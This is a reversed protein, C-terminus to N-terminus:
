NEERKSLEGLLTAFDKAVFRRARELLLPVPSSPELKRYCREVAKMLETAESRSSVTFERAEGEGEPIGSEDGVLAQLQGFDLAFPIPGAIDIRTTEVLNPALVQMAEVFSKGVLQHAQRVLLKAPSSPENLSYYAVIAQLANSAEKLSQIEGVAAPSAAQAVASEQSTDVDTGEEFPSEPTEEAPAREAIVTELIAQVGQLFNPLPEFQPAKEYGAEAVFRERLRQLDALAETIQQRLAVIEELPEYRVLADHLEQEDRVPDDRRPPAQKRAVLFDRYSLSGLRKDKILPAFQLPLLVTPLDELSQVYASRLSVDGAQPQPHADNWHNALLLALERLCEFFGTFNESLAFTKAAIVLLRVDRYQKMFDSLTEIHAKDDFNKRDFDRYSAPFGGEIVALFSLLAPDADPDPGCPLEASVPSALHPFYGM